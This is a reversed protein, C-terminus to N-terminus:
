APVLGLPLLHPRGLVSGGVITALQTVGAVQHAAAVEPGNGIKAQISEADGERGM